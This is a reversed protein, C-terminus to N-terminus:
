RITVEPQPVSALPAEHLSLQLREIVPALDQKSAVLIGPAERSEAIYLDFLNFWTELDERSAGSFDELTFVPVGFDLSGLAPNAKLITLAKGMKFFSEEDRVLFLTCAGSGLFVEMPSFWRRQPFLRVFDESKRLLHVIASNTNRPQSAIQPLSGLQEPFAKALDEMFKQSQPKAGARGSSLETLRVAQGTEWEWCVAFKRNQEKWLDQPIYLPNVLYLAQAPRAGIAESILANVFLRFRQLEEPPVPLRPYPIHHVYGPVETSAQPTTNSVSSM